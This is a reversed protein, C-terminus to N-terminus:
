NGSGCTNTDTCIDSSNDCTGRETRSSSGLCTIKGIKSVPCQAPHVKPRIACVTSNMRCDKRYKQMPIMEKVEKFGQEGRRTEERMKMGLLESLESLGGRLERSVEQRRVEGRRRGPAREATMAYILEGCAETSALSVCLIVVLNGKRITLLAQQLRLDRQM